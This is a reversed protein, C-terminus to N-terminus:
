NIHKDRHGDQSYLLANSKHRKAGTVVHIYTTFVYGDISGM